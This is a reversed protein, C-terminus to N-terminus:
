TDPWDDAFRGEALVRGSRVENLQGRQSPLRERLRDRTQRAPGVRGQPDAGLGQRRFVVVLRRDGGGPSRDGGRQPLRRHVRALIRSEDRDSPAEKDDDDDDDPDPFGDGRGEGRFRRCGEMEEEEEEEGWLHLLMVIAVRYRVRRCHGRHARPEVADRRFDVVGADGGEEGDDDTTASPAVDKAYSGRVEGVDDFYGSTGDEAQLEELFLYGQVNFTGMLLNTFKVDSPEKAASAANAM